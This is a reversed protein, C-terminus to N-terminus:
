TYAPRAIQKLCILTVATLQWCNFSPQDPGSGSAMAPLGRWRWNPTTMSFPNRSEALSPSPQSMGTSSHKWFRVNITLPLRECFTEAPYAKMFLADSHPLDMVFVHLKRRVGGIVGIAAGFDVQAHGPPHALPVFTERSRGKAIRVYDKVV